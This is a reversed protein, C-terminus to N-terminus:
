LSHLAPLTASRHLYELHLLRLLAACRLAALCAWRACRGRAMIAVNDGLIDAEEMSHTTLVIARGPKAREACLPDHPRAPLPLPKRPSRRAAPGPSRVAASSPQAGGWAANCQCSCHLAWCRPSSGQHWSALVCLWRFPVLGSMRSFEGEGEDARSSVRRGAWDAGAVGGTSARFYMQLFGRGDTFGGRGPWGGARGDVGLVCYSSM